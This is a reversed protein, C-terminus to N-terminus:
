EEVFARLADAVDSSWDGLWTLRQYSGCGEPETEALIHSAEALAEAQLDVCGAPGVAACLAWDNRRKRDSMFTRM